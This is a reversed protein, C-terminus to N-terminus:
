QVLEAETDSARTAQVANAPGIGWGDVVWEGPSFGHSALYQAEAASAVHGNVIYKLANASPSALVLGAVVRVITLSIKTFRRM